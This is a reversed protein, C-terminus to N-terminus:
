PCPNILQKAFPLSKKAHKFNFQEETAAACGGIGINRERSKRRRTAVCESDSQFYTHLLLLNRVFDQELHTHNKGSSSPLLFFQQLIEEFEAPELNLDEDDLTQNFQQYTPPPLLLLNPPTPTMLSSICHKSLSFIQPSLISTTLMTALLTAYTVSAAIM